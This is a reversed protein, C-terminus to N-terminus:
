FCSINNSVVGFINIDAQHTSNGIGGYKYGITGDVLPQYLTYLSSDTYFATITLPDNDTTYLKISTLDSCGFGIYTATWEHYLVVNKTTTTTSYNDCADSCNSYPGVFTGLLYQGPSSLGNVHVTRFMDSQYYFKNIDLKILSKVIVSGNKECTECNFVDVDYYYLVNDTTTTTTTNKKNKFVFYLVVALVLIILIIVTTM